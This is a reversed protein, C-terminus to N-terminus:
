RTNCWRRGVQSPAPIAAAALTARWSRVEYHWWSWPWWSSGFCSEASTCHRNATYLRYHRQSGKLLPCSYHQCFHWHRRHHYLHCRTTAPQPSRWLRRLRNALNTLLTNGSSWFAAVMHPVAMAIPPEVLYSTESNHLNYFLQNIKVWWWCKM